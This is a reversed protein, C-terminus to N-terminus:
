ILINDHYKLSDSPDLRLNAINNKTEQISKGEFPDKKTVLYYLCCGLSWTDSNIGFTPKDSIFEPASYSIHGSFNSKKTLKKFNYPLGILNFKLLNNHMHLRTPHVDRHIIGLSNLHAIASTLQRFLSLTHFMSTPTKCFQKWSSIHDPAESRFAITNIDDLM